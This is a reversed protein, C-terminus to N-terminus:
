RLWLLKGYKCPRYTGSNTDFYYTCNYIVSGECVYDYGEIGAPYFNGDTSRWYQPLSSCLPASTSAVAATIGFVVTLATLAFKVKKM